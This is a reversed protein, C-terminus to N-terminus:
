NLQGLFHQINELCGSNFVTNEEPFLCYQQWQGYWAVIGITNGSRTKCHWTEKKDDPLNFLLSDIFNNGQEFHIYRYKTKM